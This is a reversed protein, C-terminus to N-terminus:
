RSLSGKGATGLPTGAMMLGLDEETIVSPDDVVGMIEGKHIVALRDSLAMVEELDESVLLIAAGRERQRLLQERVFETAGVDLGWTPQMAVILRPTGSLERGLMLRQQNGGSLNRVPVGLGPTSVGFREVIRGTEGAVNEWSLFIGKAYPKKWYNKLNFNERLNMTGVLGTGKRDAPIYSLGARIFEMPHAGTMDRGLFDVRGFQIPRLGSLVECLERQGNGAIGALGLIEGERITLSLNRVSPLGRDNLACIGDAALVTEGANLVEKDVTFLVKRGVMKEALEEKTVSRGSLTEVVEGKRLITIRDSIEMVEDLKHSIFIVGHGESTMQRITNFLHQVEQPTLVSTPEDLVLVEAKRYLMKLIEVRQQEGVSLQWVKAEPEVELGYRCSLERIREIVAKRPLVAALDPLGMIMNEWVSLVPVLMFHQHVMGIGAAIADRPSAFRCLDGRIRISGSDPIYLGNLINMLTSKGAGNEGLLTHVEGPRVDFNIGVNARVAAFSKSIDKMEVLPSKISSEM